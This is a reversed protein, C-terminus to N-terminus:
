RDRKLINFILTQSDQFEAWFKNREIRFLNHTVLDMMFNASNMFICSYELLNLTLWLRGLESERKPPPNCSVGYQSHKQPCQMLIAQILDRSGSNGLSPRSKQALRLILDPPSSQCSNSYAYEKWAVSSSLGRKYFFHKVQESKWLRGGIMRWDWCWVAAIKLVAKISSIRTTKMKNNM